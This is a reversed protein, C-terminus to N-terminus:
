VTSSFSSFSLSLVKFFFDDNVKYLPFQRLTFFVSCQCLHEFNHQIHDSSLFLPCCVYKHLIFHLNLSTFIKCLLICVAHLRKTLREHNCVRIEYIKRLNRKINTPITKANTTLAINRLYFSCVLPGIYSHVRSFHLLFSFFGACSQLSFTEQKKKYKQINKEDTKKKKASM